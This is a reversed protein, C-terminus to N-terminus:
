SGEEVLMTRILKAADEPRERVMQQVRSLIIDHPTEPREFDDEEVDGAVEGLVEIDEEVGVGRGIAQIIFRLTILAALIGLVKAVNIAIGTWFQKRGEAIAEDRAQIEQSKDFPMAFVTVDDGRSEDYGVAQRALEALNEIEEASRKQEIARGDEGIIVKTQDVTLAMSMRSIAGISGVINRVTRNVEYNRVANEESGQEASQRENTEESIVIQSGSPPDFLIEDTLRQSFDLAVNVRVKSRGSGIVEDMLSQVKKELVQEVKQQMRFQKNAAQALPDHEETLMNGEQDVIVIRSNHLGEVSASVLNVIADIQQPKLASRGALTLNVAATVPNQEETFLSEEPIVLHVRATNVGDIGSLTHELEGQLARVKNIDQLFDTMALQTDDFIEYGMRGSRPFGEAALMLRMERVKDDPVVITSADNTLKFPMGVSNLRTSIEAAESYDLDAYLIAPDWDDDGGTLSMLGFVLAIVLVAAGGIAGFKQPQPAETWWERPRDAMGTMQDPLNM